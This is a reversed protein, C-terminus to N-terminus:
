AGAEKGQNYIVTLSDHLVEAKISTLNGQHEGDVQMEQGPILDITVAQCSHIDVKKVKQINKSFFAILLRFIFYWRYPKIVVVEFKGDNIKGQPNIVAGTGYVHTNLIVVMVAQYQMDAQDPYRIICSFKSPKNLERFFQRAYGYFGRISKQEFRRIIRANMGLDCLHVALYKDNIQLLDITKLKRESLIDLAREINKPIGLETAMGNASGTPVIGLPINQNLLDSALLNVTGDGGVAVAFDPSIESLRNAIRERDSTGKTELFHIDVPENKFYDTILQQIDIDRKNGAVPNIIFLWIENKRVNM